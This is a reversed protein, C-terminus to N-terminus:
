SLSTEVTGTTVREGLPKLRGADLDEGLRGELRAKIKGGLRRFGLERSTLKVLDDFTMAGAQTLVHASAAQIASDPVDDISRYMPLPEKPSPTRDIYEPELDDADPMKSASDDAREDSTGGTEDLPLDAPGSAVAAEYATVVRDLQRNPDRVWDTSWIRIIRWGLNELVTQRIRDRDRATHSSHYTAGDCEVALCFEGPREPHKLALDIRFGGCGVQAVPELGRKMLAAAVEEEFPSDAEGAFEDMALGLTDVGKEAYSLYAKLLHAGESKSGTLDMDAARVSSVFVLEERARTVAVNLRREGNQRNIPGFNKNFKGADNFGYGMSLFIVDREDGQVNELNKIFLRENVSGFYNGSDFLADVEPRERRLDYLTDEIARQQSQNLAIVGLSTDPRERVHEVIMEVVRQAEKENKRDVWRGEPVHELRVGGDAHVSPFTVLEGDYFHRNSFAILPERRSRYHWRLRQNPMGISKCLSLISEYDGIDDEEDSEADARSFFNTPPLQKDDGAVILQQGRYIAGLADWPFVQSAEDFIVLDFRIDDTDLFTSVSLPSMMICPKLRQLVTPIESFLRRLPKHKRKKAIEKQLIGLESSEAGLFASSPRDDRGLQYQRIRGASVKVEWQDLFRFRERIREHEDVDFEGLTRDDAALRDFLHRYFQVAVVDAADEPAYRGAVLEDVVTGFGADTIDRKWAGFKLWEDFHPVQTTLAALKEGVEGLPTNSIVFGDSVETNLDFITKLFDWAEKFEANGFVAKAEALADRVRQRVDDDSAVERTLPAIPGTDTIGSLWAASTMDDATVDPIGLETLRAAARNITSRTECLEEVQQSLRELEAVDVDEDDRLTAVVAELHGRDASLEALSEELVAEVDSAAREGADLGATDFTETLLSAAAMLQEGSSKWAPQQRGFDARCWTNKLTDEDVGVEEFLGAAEVGDRMSQWPTATIPDGTEPLWDAYKEAGAGLERNRSAHKGTAALLDRLESVNTLSRLTFEECQDWLNACAELRCRTEDLQESASAPNTEAVNPLQLASSSRTTDYRRWAGNLREAPGSLKGGGVARPGDPLATVVEPWVTALDDAAAVATKLREWSAPEDAAFDEPLHRSFEEAVERTDRVRRLYKQLSAMDAAVDAAAPVDGSYLESVEVRFKGFGGFWQKLKSRYVVGRAAVDAASERFARHSLRGELTERVSAADALDGAADDCARRLRDRVSADRWAGYLLESLEVQRLAEQLSEISGVSPMTPEAVGLVEAVEATSASVGQLHNAAERVVQLSNNLSARDTLGLDAATTVTAAADDTAGLQEALPAIQEAAVVEALQEALSENKAVLTLAKEALSRISKGHKPSLWAERAPGATAALTTARGLDGLRAPSASEPTPLGTATAHQTAEAVLKRATEEAPRIREVESTAEELRHRVSPANSKRVGLDTKVEAEDAPGVTIARAADVPFVGEVDDVFRDLEGLIAARTAEATLREVISASTAAPAEFWSAPTAPAALADRCAKLTENLNAPTVDPLLEREVLPTFLEHVRGLRESLLGFHHGLDDHISLSRTTHKCGRWPHSDHEAIVTEFDAARVLQRMWGDFTVRDAGTLDPLECRTLQALGRSTLHSVRGFLEFASLGLPDRPEHIRRVYDNLRSRQDALEDLKPVSDPYVEGPLDLCRELEFLVSRRNAKDSHCELCFDDLQRDELRQKVVELASIKESVFLVTRGVSLADAIINAITQSKGTGPPGDLVFSVGKRAAVIAELQSSDCDLITKM